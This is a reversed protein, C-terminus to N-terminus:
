SSSELLCQQEELFPRVFTRRWWVEFAHQLNPCNDGIKLFSGLWALLISQQNELPLTSITRGIGEEVLKGDFSRCAHLLWSYDDILPQLWKDLLLFRTDKSPLVEGRGIAVFLRATVCSVLHRSVIPIKPHLMVLENQCSWLHVFEDGAQRDILIEALWLLNDAQLAIQKAISEKSYATTDTSRTEAAQNFLLLLADLCSRCSSYLNENCVDATGNNPFKYEKLLKLILTKMERRGKEENGKVVLELIHSLIGSPTTTIEPSVRRLLPTVGRADVQLGQLSTVVKDEEEGVWPVAELFELCSRIGANFGLAEGVKLLRLVRSISQKILRQKIDKCYMLGVVEVYIEVDECDGIEISCPDASTASFKEGFFTSKGALVDRHVSLKVTFGQKGSLLVECDRTGAEGYEVSVVRKEVRHNEEPEPNPCRQEDPVVVRSRVPSSKTEKQHNHRRMSNTRPSPDREKRRSLDGKQFVVQSPCCWFGEPTVAIPVNRIKTHTHVTRKVRFDAM